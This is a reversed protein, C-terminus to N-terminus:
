SIRVAVREPHHLEVEDASQVPGISRAQL